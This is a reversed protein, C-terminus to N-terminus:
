TFRLVPSHRPPLKCFGVDSPVQLRASFFYDCPYARCHISIEYGDLILDRITDVRISTSPMAPIIPAGTPAELTRHDCGLPLPAGVGWLTQCRPEM